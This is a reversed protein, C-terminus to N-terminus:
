VLLLHLRSTPTMARRHRRVLACRASGLRTRNRCPDSPPIQLDLTCNSVVQTRPSRSCLWPAVRAIRPNHPRVEAVLHRCRKSLTWVARLRARELKRRTACTLTARGSHPGPPM